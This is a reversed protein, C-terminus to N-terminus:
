ENKYVQRAAEEITRYKKVQSIICDGFLPYYCMNDKWNKCEVQQCNTIDRGHKIRIGIEKLASFCDDCLHAKKAKKAGVVALPLDYDLDFYFEKMKVKHVDRLVEGCCDCIYQKSM